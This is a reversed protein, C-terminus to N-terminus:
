LEGPASPDAMVGAAAIAENRKLYAQVVGYLMLSLIIIGPILLFWNGQIM